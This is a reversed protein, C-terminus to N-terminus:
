TRRSRGSRRGRSCRTSSRTASCPAIRTTSPLRPWSARRARFGRGRRIPHQSGAQVGRSVRERGGVDLAGSAADGEGAPGSADPEGTRGTGQGSAHERVPHRHEAGVASPRVAVRGQTAAADAPVGVGQGLVAGGAQRLARPVRAPGRLVRVDVGVGRVAAGDTREDRRRHLRNPHM